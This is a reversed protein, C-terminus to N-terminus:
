HTTYRKTFFDLFCLYFVTFFYSGISISILIKSTTSTIVVEGTLVPDSVGNISISSERREYNQKKPM